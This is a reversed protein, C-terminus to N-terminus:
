RRSLTPTLREPITAQYFLGAAIHDLCGFKGALFTSREALKELLVADIFVMQLGRVRRECAIKEDKRM